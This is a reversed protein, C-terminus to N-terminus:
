ARWTREGCRSGASSGSTFAPIPRLRHGWRPATDLPRQRHPTTPRSTPAQPHHRRAPRHRGQRPLRPLPTLDDPPHLHQPGLDRGRDDADGDQVGDAGVVLDFRREGAHQFTVRVGGEDQALGTISDGYIYEVDAATADLLISSLDGRLIEIEAVPGAGDFLEAPMAALRRGRANVYELGREHLQRERIAPMLGMQEVVERAIGRIDITQGGPRPSPAVEVITPRFGYRHLWYALAPGAIGAGSILVNSSM